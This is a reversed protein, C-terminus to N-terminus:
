GGGLEQKVYEAAIAACEDLETGMTRNEVTENGLPSAAIIRFMEAGGRHSAGPLGITEMTKGIEEVEEVWRYAKPPTKCVREAAWDFGVKHGTNFEKVVDDYVGLAKAAIFTEAAVAVMTKTMSAFCMKLAAARGIETGFDFITLGHAALEATLEAADPGSAYYRTPNKQPSPPDGFIGVDVFRAGTPAIVAQVEKKTAPSLANCDAYLIPKGIETIHPAMRKALAMADRPPLISLFVDAQEILARDNGVDEIGADKALGRSRESRGELNTIVRLGNRVLQGGTGSGMEGQAMVAVTKVAM